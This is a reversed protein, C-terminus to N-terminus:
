NTILCVHILNHFIERNATQWLVGHDWVTHLAILRSTSIIGFNTFQIHNDRIDNTSLVFKETYITLISWFTSTMRNKGNTHEMISNFKWNNLFHKRKANAHFMCCVVASVECNLRFPFVCSHLYNSCRATKFRQFHRWCGIWM